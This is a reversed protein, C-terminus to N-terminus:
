RGLAKGKHWLVLELLRIVPLNDLQPHLQRLGSLINQPDPMMVWKLLTETYKQFAEVSRIFPYKPRPQFFVNAVWTDWIPYTAPAFFHLLKSLGITSNTTFPVLEKLEQNTLLQGGNRVQQLLAVVRAQRQTDFGVVPALKKTLIQKSQMWSLVCHLAAVAVPWTVTQVGSFHEVLPPHFHLIVDNTIRKLVDPEQAFLQWDAYDLNQYQARPRPM